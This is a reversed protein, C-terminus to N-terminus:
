LRSELRAVEFIAKRADIAATLEDKLVNLAAGKAKRADPSLTGLTKMEDTIRGKRGLGAVRVAELEDLTAADNVAAILEAKLRQLDDM